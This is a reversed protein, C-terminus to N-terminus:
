YRPDPPEVYGINLRHSGRVIKVRSIDYSEPSLGIFFGFNSDPHEIMHQAHKAIDITVMTDGVAIRELAILPGAPTDFTSFPELLERVGIEISDRHSLYETCEFSLEAYIAMTSDLLSDYNFKVFDRYVLGSGIWDDFLTPEPGSIIHCDADAFAPITVDNKELVFRAPHDGERSSIYCFGTDRPVIMIGRAEQIQELEIYNFYLVVSDGQAIGYRISDSDFDGGPTTWPEDLNRRTWDAEYESFEIDMLHISFPVTDNNFNDRISLILRIEDLGEYTSDPFDFVIMARSEYEANMGFALNIASGTNVNKFETFTSFLSLEIFQPNFDGRQRLEDGGVPLENCAIFIVVIALMYRKM